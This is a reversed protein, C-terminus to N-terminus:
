FFKHVSRTAADPCSFAEVHFEQMQMELVVRLAVRVLGRDDDSGPADAIRLEIRHRTSEGPLEHGM